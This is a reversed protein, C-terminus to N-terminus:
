GRIEPILPSREALQAVVVARLLFKKSVIQQRHSEFRPSSIDLSVASGVTGSGGDRLQFNRDRDM